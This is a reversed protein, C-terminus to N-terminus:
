HLAPLSDRTRGGARCEIGLVAAVACGEDGARVADGLGAGGVIVVIDGVAGGAGDDPREGAGRSLHQLARRRPRTIANRKRRNGCVRRSAAGSLDQREIARVKVTHRATSGRIGQHAYALCAANVSAVM